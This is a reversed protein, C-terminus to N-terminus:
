AAQQEEGPFLLIHHPWIRSCSWPSTACSRRPMIEGQATTTFNYGRKTLIKMHSHTLDRGALDLPLIAHPVAYSKYIPVMHTVGDGSNM